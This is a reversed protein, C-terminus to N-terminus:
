ASDSRYRDLSRRYDEPTDMDLLGRDGAAAVFVTAREQEPAGLVSRASATPDRPDLALFAPALRADVLVPHGRRHAFSPVFIQEDPRRTAFAATLQHVDAGRVLPFDVPFILFADAGPPLLALGAQLSSLMGREPHENLAHYVNGSASASAAARVREGAPGAATVLIPVDTAGGRCAALVLDLCTRGDFDLLAKPQGGMRSSAGAALVLPTVLPAANM